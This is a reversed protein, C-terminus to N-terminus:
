KQFNTYLTKTLDEVLQMADPRSAPIAYHFSRIEWNGNIQVFYIVFLAEVIRQTQVRYVLQINQSLEPHSSWYAVNGGGLGIELYKENPFSSLTISQIEGIEQFLLGLKTSIATKDTILESSTYNEPYHFFQASKQYGHNKLSSIFEGSVEILSSDANAVKLQFIAIIIFLLSYNRM